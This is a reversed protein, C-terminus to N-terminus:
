ITSMKEVFTLRQEAKLTAFRVNHVHVSNLMCVPLVAIM